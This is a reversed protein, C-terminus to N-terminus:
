QGEVGRKPHDRRVGPSKLREGSQPTFYRDCLDVHGQTKWPKATVPHHDYRGRPAERVDFVLPFQTPRRGGSTSTSDAQRSAAVSERRAIGARHTFHAVFPSTDLLM